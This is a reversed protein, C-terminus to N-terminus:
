IVCAFIIYLVIFQGSHYLLGFTCMKCNKRYCLDKELTYINKDAAAWKRLADWIDM